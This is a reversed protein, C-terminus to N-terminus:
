VNTLDLYFSKIVTNTPKFTLNNSIYQGGSITSPANTPLGKSKLISTFKINLLNTDKTKVFEDLASMATPEQTRLLQALYQKSVEPYSFWSLISNISNNNDAPHPNM